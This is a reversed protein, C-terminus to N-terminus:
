EIAPSSAAPSPLTELLGIVAWCTGWYTSTAEVRDAKKQKTGRVPWSGDASQTRILFERGGQIAAAADPSHDVSLAYLALGTGFADSEDRTLWGWGGDDHQRSLLERRVEDVHSSEGIQKALLLSAAYWEASERKEDSGLWDLARALTDGGDASAYGTLAVLAWLTTVEETERKPRKQFPLQGGPKWYGEPQQSQRLANAFATGQASDHHDPSAGLLLQAVEDPHAQLTAEEGLELQETTAMHRWDHAWINWDRLKQPDVEIGRGAAANLSWVMFPVQHCTLCKKQEIWRVGEAEIFPLSRTVAARVATDDVSPDSGGLLAAYIAFHPLSM